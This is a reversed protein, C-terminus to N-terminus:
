FGAVCTCSPECCSFSKRGHDIGCVEGKKCTLYYAADPTGVSPGRDVDCYIEGGATTPACAGDWLRSCTAADCTGGDTDGDGEAPAANTTSCGLAAVLALAGFTARAIV